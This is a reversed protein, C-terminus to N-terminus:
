RAAAIKRMRRQGLALVIAVAIVIAVASILAVGSLAASSFGSDLKLGSTTPTLVGLVNVAPLTFWVNGKSDVALLQADSSPNPIPFTDFREKNLDLTGISNGIHEVFWIRDQQQDFVLGFPFAQSNSLPYSKFTQTTPNFNTIRNGGHETFWVSGDSDVILGTPGLLTSNSPTFESVSGNSPNLGGIKGTKSETFWVVGHQDVAVQIPISDTTPIQFETINGTSPVLRGIKDSIEETFWINGSNDATIGGPVAGPTPIPFQRFTSSKSDFMVIQNYQTESVWVTGNKDVTLYFPRSGTQPLAFEHLTGTIPDYRGISGSGTEAFWVVGNEDVSIGYPNAGSSLPLESFRESLAPVDIQFPVVIDYGQSRQAWVELQWNGAFSLYTGDLAYTGHNPEATATSTGVNRDLYKFKVSVSQVNTIPAGQADTFDLDFHNDGVQFPTIKVTVNVGEVSYGRLVLPVYQNPPTASTSQAAPSSATLVGVILLVIIGLAIESRLSLKFRKIWMGGQRRNTRNTKAEVVRDYVVFQNAAGFTLMIAFISLKVLLIEGYATSYLASLSGVELLLNYIGTLGIIGVSIIAVFSFRRILEGLFRGKLERLSAITLALHVLGGIWAGVAVLHIWDSLLNVLPYYNTAAANHSSLSTSLSLILGIALISIWSKKSTKRSKLITTSASIAILLTIMRFVWTTGLRTSSLITYAAGLAVNLSSSGAVTFSELVLSLTTAILGIIMAYTLLLASRSEIKRSVVTQPKNRRTSITPIWVSLAFISGGLFITDALINLWRDVVEAPSPFTFPNGANQTVRITVNGVGFPFSGSTHHGDVASIAHWAVTYVGSPLTPLTIILITADASDVHYGTDVEKGSSDYLAAGTLKPEVQETFYLTVQHPPSAIVSNAPPDSRILNAHAHVPAVLGVLLLSAIAVFLILRTNM